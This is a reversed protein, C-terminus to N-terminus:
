VALNLPPYRSKKLISSKFLGVKQKGKEWWLLRFSAGDSRTGGFTMNWQENGNSDTKVLCVDTDGAVDSNTEGAIIYGGDKTQQVSNAWDNRTGGFTKNWQQNGAADTKILWVDHKGAGYSETYGSIIYGGDSTQRVSNAADDGKRGFTKNWQEGGNADTKILWADKKGAGYSETWGALIFGGDSTQRVSYATDDNTGGFTKNWQEPPAAGAGSVGLLIAMTLVIAIRVVIKRYINDMFVKL